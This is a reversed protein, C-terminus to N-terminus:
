FKRAEVNRIMHTVATSHDKAGLEDVAVHALARIRGSFRLAAFEHSQGLVEINVQYDSALNECWANFDEGPMALADMYGLVPPVSTAPYIAYM